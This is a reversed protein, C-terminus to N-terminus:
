QQELEGVLVILVCLNKLQAQLPLINEVAAIWVPAPQLQVLQQTTSALVASKVTRLITKAKKTTTRAQLVSLATLPPMKDSQM